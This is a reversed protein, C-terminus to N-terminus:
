IILARQFDEEAGKYNRIKQYLIGRNVHFNPENPDLKIAKGYDSLAAKNDGM